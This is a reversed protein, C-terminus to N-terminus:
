QAGVPNISLAGVSQSVKKWLMRVMQVLRAHFFSSGHLIRWEIFEYREQSPCTDQLLDFHFFLYARPSALSILLLLILSFYIQSEEGIAISQNYIKQIRKRNEQRVLLEGARCLIPYQVQDSLGIPAYSSLSASPKIQDRQRSHISNYSKKQRQRSLINSCQGAVKMQALLERRKIRRRNNM